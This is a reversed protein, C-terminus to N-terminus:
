VLYCEFIRPQIIPYKVVNCYKFFDELTKELKQPEPFKEVPAPIAWKYYFNEVYVHLHPCLIKKGNYQELFDIPVFDVEPNTHPSGLIDLRILIIASRYREQYTCKLRISGKRNVDISFKMTEDLSIFELEKYEGQAPFSIFEETSNWKKTMDLLKKAESQTIM